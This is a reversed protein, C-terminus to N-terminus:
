KNRHTQYIDNWAQLPFDTHKLVVVVEHQQYGSSPLLTISIVCKSLKAQAYYVLNEAM